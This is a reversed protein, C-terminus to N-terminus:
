FNQSYYFKKDLKIWERTQNVWGIWCKYNQELRMVASVRKQERIQFAFKMWTDKKFQWAENQHYKSSMFEFGM